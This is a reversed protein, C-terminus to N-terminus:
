GKDRTVGSETLEERFCTQMDRIESRADRYSPLDKAIRNVVRSDWMQAQPDNVTNQLLTHVSIFYFGMTKAALDTQGTVAFYYLLQRYSKGQIIDQVSMNYMNFARMNAEEQALIRYWTKLSELKNIDSLRIYIDEYRKNLDDQKLFLDNYQVQESVAAFSSFGVFLTTLLLIIQRM